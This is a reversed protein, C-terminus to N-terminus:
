GPGRCRRRRGAPRRRRCGRAAGPVRRHRQQELPDDAQLVPRDGASPMRSRMRPASAADPMVPVSPFGSSKRGWSKRLSKVVSAMRFPIGGCMAWSISPCLSMLVVMSGAPKNAARRALHEIRAAPSALISGAATEEERGRTGAASDPIGHGHLRCGPRLRIRLDGRRDRRHIRAPLRRPRQRHLDTVPQALPQTILLERGREPVPAARPPGRRPQRQHRHQLPRLLQGVPQCGVRDPHPDVPFVQHPQRQIVRPEVVRDQRLEAALDGIRPQLLDRQIGQQVAQCSILQDPFAPLLAGIGGM